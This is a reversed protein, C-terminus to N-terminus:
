LLVIEDDPMIRGGAVVAVRIGGRIGAFAEAFGPKGSLKSPRGCPLCIEVWSMVVHPGIRLRRNECAALDLGCVVINRRTDEPLFPQSLGKNAADIAEVAIITVHRVVPRSTPVQFAGKGMAYRDGELGQGAIAVATRRMCMPEGQNPATFIQVVRGM